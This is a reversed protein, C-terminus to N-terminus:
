WEIFRSANYILKRFCNKCVYGDVATTGNFRQIKLKFYGYKETLDQEENKNYVFDEGCIFCKVLRYNEGEKHIERLIEEITKEEVIITKYKPNRCLENVIDDREDELYLLLKLADYSILVEAKALKQHIVKMEIEKSKPSVDNNM